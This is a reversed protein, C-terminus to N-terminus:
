RDGDIQVRGPVNDAPATSQPQSAYSKVTLLGVGKCKDKTGYTALLNNMDFPKGMTETRKTSSDSCTGNDIQFQGNQKQSAYAYSKVERGKKSFSIELHGHRNQSSSSKLSVKKAKTDVEIQGITEGNASVILNPRVSKNPGLPTASKHLEALKEGCFEDSFESKSGDPEVEKLAEQCSQMLEEGPCKSTYGEPQALRAVLSPISRKEAESVQNFKSKRQKLFFFLFNHYGKKMEDDCTTGQFVEKCAALHKAKSSKEMEDVYKRNKELIGVVQDTTVDSQQFKAVQQRVGDHFKGIREEDLIMEAGTCKVEAKTDFYVNFAQQCKNVALSPPCLDNPCAGARKALKSYSALQSLGQAVKGPGAEACSIYDSCYGPDINGVKSRYLDYYKEFDPNQGSVQQCLEGEKNLYFRHKNGQKDALEFHHESPETGCLGLKMYELKGSFSTQVDEATGFQIRPDEEKGDRNPTVCQSGKDDEGVTVAAAPEPAAVAVPSANPEYKGKVKALQQQFLTCQEKGKSPADGDCLISNINDLAQKIKKYNAENPIGEEGREQAAEFCRKSINLDGTKPDKRAVCTNVGYVQGCRFTNPKGCGRGFTPCKGNTKKRAMGGIVCWKDASLESAANAISFFLETLIAFHRRKMKRHLKKEMKYFARRVETIYRVQNHVSLRKFQQYDMMLSQSPLARPKQAQKMSRKAYSSPAFSILAGLLACQFLRLINKM